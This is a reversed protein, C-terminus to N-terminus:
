VTVPNMLADFSAAKEVVQAQDVIWDVVMDEMVLTEVGRLLQPNGAYYRKFEEPDEYDRAMEAIRSQVKEADIQLASLKAVEALLIGLQVRRKARDMFSELPLNSGTQEAETQKKLTEAEQGVIAAPVDVPNTELLADMVKNKMDTRLKKELEREMNARIEGRLQEINGDEIGFARAFEADVEPLEPSEVKNVTINFEAEKGALDAASYDDPFTINFTKEDGASLGTLNDEFGPIMSASGIVVPMDSGSGGSFVEGDMKGTFDITVKDGEASAREAPLWNMRQKCLTELMKDVDADEVDATQKEVKIESIPSLEVVPYIEFTATYEMVQGLNLDKAAITPEGAPQLNEQQVAQQFSKEMLESAVEQLIRGAYHQKIVRLPVKGPRFGDIRVTNKLSNLRNNVETEVTEAPLQVTLKRELGEGAEVSVQM